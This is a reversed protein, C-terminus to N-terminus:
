ALAVRGRHLTVVELKLRKLTVIMEKDVTAVVAGSKRAYGVVCDDVSGGECRETRFSGALEEAVRAVKSRRWEKGSITRLEVLVCDLAVPQFSGLEQTMDEFWTTPREVVAMLFSSDFVVFRSGKM